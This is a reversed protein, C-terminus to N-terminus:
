FEGTGGLMWCLVWQFRGRKTEQERLLDSRFIGRRPIRMGPQLWEESKSALEQTDNEAPYPVTYGALDGERCSVMFGGVFLFGALAAAFSLRINGLVDLKLRHQLM